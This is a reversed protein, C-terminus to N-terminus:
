TVRRTLKGTARTAATLTGQLATKMDTMRKMGSGKTGAVTKVPRVPTPNQRVVNRGEKTAPRGATTARGVHPLCGSVAVFTAVPHQLARANAATPLATRASDKVTIVIVTMVRRGLVSLSVILFADFPVFLLCVGFDGLVRVTQGRLEKGDLQKVARDADERSLYELVSSLTLL